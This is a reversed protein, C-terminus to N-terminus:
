DLQECLQEPSHGTKEAWKQIAPNTPEKPTRRLEEKAKKLTASESQEMNQKIERLEEAQQQYMQEQEAMAQAQKEFTEIQIDLGVTEVNPGRMEQKILRRIYESKNDKQELYRDIAEDQTSFTHRSM